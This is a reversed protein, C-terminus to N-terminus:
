CNTECQGGSQALVSIKKTNFISLSSLFDYQDYHEEHIRMGVGGVWGAVVVAM